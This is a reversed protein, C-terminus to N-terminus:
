YSLKSSQFITQLTDTPATTEPSIFQHQGVGENINIYRKGSAVIPMGFTPGDWLDHMNSRRVRHLSNSILLVPTESYTCIDNLWDSLDILLTSLIQTSAVPVAQTGCM